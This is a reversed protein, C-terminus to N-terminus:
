EEGLKKMCTLLIENIKIPKDGHIFDIDKIQNDICNRIYEKIQNEIYRIEEPTSTSKEYSSGLDTLLRILIYETVFNKLIINLITDDLVDLDPHLTKENLIMEFTISMASRAASAEKDNGSPFYHNSFIVLIEQFNKGKFEDGLKKITETTGITGIDRVFSYVSDFGSIFSQSSSVFNHSGGYSKVYHPFLSAPSQKGKKNILRTLTTKVATWEKAINKKQEDTLNSQDIWDPLLKGKGGPGSYISSTGM